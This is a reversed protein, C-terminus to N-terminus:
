LFISVNELSWFITSFNWDLLSLVLSESFNWLQLTIIKTHQAGIAASLLVRCDHRAMDCHNDRNHIILRPWPPSNQHIQSYKHQDWNNSWCIPLGRYLIYVTNYTHRHSASLSVFRLVTRMLVSFVALKLFTWLWLAATNHQRCAPHSNTTKKKKHGFILESHNKM